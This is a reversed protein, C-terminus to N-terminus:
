SVSAGKRLNMIMSDLLAGIILEEGKMISFTIYFIKVGMVTLVNLFWVENTSTSFLFCESKWQFHCLIVINTDFSVRVFGQVFTLPNHSIFFKGQAGDFFFLSRFIFTHSFHFSYWNFFFLFYYLRICIYHIKVGVGCFVRFIFYVPDLM